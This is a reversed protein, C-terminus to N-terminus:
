VNMACLFRAALASISSFRVRITSATCRSTSASRPTLFLTFLYFLSLKIKLRVKETSQRLEDLQVVKHSEFCRMYRHANDCSACLFNACDNCRSIAMEKSKCSTCALLSPEITSLDLVNTLIYNQHLGAAGKMGVKTTQKCIPCEMSMEDPGNEDNLSKEICTECFVHLCSL